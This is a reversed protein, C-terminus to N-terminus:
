QPRFNKILVVTATSHGRTMVLDGEPTITEDFINEADFHTLQSRPGGNLPLKWINSVGDHTEIYAVAAGSPM